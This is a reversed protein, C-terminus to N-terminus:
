SAADVQRAVPEEAVLEAIVRNIAPGIPREPARTTGIAHASFLDNAAEPDEDDLAALLDRHMEAVEHWDGEFAPDSLVHMSRLSPELIDWMRPLYPNGCAVVVTKHFEFDLERFAAIDGHDATAHMRDIIAGTSDRSGDNVYIFEFDLDSRAKTAESLATHFVAVNDQENYVPLVYAIRGRQAGPRDASDSM